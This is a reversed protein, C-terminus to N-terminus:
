RKGADVPLLPLEMHRHRQHARRLKANEERAGTTTGERGRPASRACGIVWPRSSSTWSAPWTRSRLTSTSSWPRLTEGSSKQIGVGVSPRSTPEPKKEPVTPV